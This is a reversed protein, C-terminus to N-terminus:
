VWAAAGLPRNLAVFQVRCGAPLYDLVDAFHTAVQDATAASAIGLNLGTCALVRGLRGTTTVFHDEALDLLPLLDAASGARSLPSPM